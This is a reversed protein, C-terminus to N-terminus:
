CPNVLSRRGAGEVSQDRRCFKVNTRHLDRSSSACDRRVNPVCRGSHFVVCETHPPLRVFQDLIESPVPALPADSPEKPKRRM